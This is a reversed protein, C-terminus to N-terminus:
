RLTAERGALVQALHACRVSSGIYRLGGEIHMLCSVDCGIVVGAGSQNIEALKRKLMETSIEPQDVAFVGGFGCCEPALRHVQAMAVGELLDLPQRDVGLERLLHCSPHYALRGIFSAGLDVVGLQDVLFESLEYTREALANARLLWTPDDAFLELYGHRIMAACSGSPVVVPGVTDDLVEITHRAMKRAPDRYGANFAPQGCCTQEQPIAVQVGARMLVEIVAEGIEPFLSDILCTVFLQITEIM